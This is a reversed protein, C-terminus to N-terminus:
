SEATETAPRAFLDALALSWGPVVDQGDLADNGTLITVDTPSRYVM